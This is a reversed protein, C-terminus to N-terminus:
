AGGAAGAGVGGRTPIEIVNKGRDRGKKTEVVRFCGLVPGTAEISPVPPDLHKEVRSIVGAV